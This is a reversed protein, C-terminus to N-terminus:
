TNKGQKCDEEPFFMLQNDNAWSWSGAIAPTITVGESVAKNILNLPAVSQTVWEAKQVGFNITLHNPYLHEQNPTIDPVQIQATVLVPKPQHQYWYVTYAMIIILSFVSVVSAWFAKPSQSAQHRLYTFWPPSNWQLKGFISALFSRIVNLFTNKNM